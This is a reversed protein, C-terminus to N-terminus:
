FRYMLGLKVVPYFGIDSISDNAEKLAANKLDEFQSELAPVNGVTNWSGNFVELSTNVPVNLDFRGVDNTIVVGADLYLKLGAFLGFDFGTGLYPGSYDWNFEVDGTMGSANYRYKQGGMEFEIPAGFGDLGDVVADAAINTNGKMYGGSIRWGGLAFTNGFPYFDVLVGMHEASVKTNKASLIEGLGNVEKLVENAVDDLELEIFDTTAYDARFGFRKWWFSDFDKNAYGVFFNAGSTGAGAGIQVGAPFSNESDNIESEFEETEKPEEKKVIEEASKKDAAMLVKEDSKAYLSDNSDKKMDVDILKEESPPLMDKQVDLSYAPVSLALVSVFPIIKKM